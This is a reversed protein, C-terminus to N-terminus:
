NVTKSQPGLYIEENPAIEKPAVAGLKYTGEWEEQTMEPAKYQRPKVDVGDVNFLKQMNAKEQALVASAQIVQLYMELAQQSGTEQAEALFDLAANKSYIMLTNSQAEIFELVKAPPMEMFKKAYHETAELNMKKPDRRRKRKPQLDEEKEDVVLESKVQVLETSKVEIDEISIKMPNKHKLM